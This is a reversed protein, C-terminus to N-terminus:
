GLRAVKRLVDKVGKGHEAAGYIREAKKTNLFKEYKSHLESVDTKNVFILCPINQAELRALTQIDDVCLGRTADVVIIGCDMGCSLIDRMFSFKEQGPTGFFHLRKDKLDRKGYDLCYTKGEHEVAIAKGDMNRILTSKGAEEQGFVVIKIDKM